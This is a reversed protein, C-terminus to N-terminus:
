TCNIEIYCNCSTSKYKNLFYETNKSIPNYNQFVNLLKLFKKM